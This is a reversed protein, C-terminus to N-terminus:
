VATAEIPGTRENMLGLICTRELVKRPSGQLGRFRVEGGRRKAEQLICIIAGVGSSDLYNVETMDIHICRAGSEIRGLVAAKFDPASYLDCDGRIIFADQDQPPRDRMTKEMGDRRKPEFAPETEFEGSISSMSVLWSQVYCAVEAPDLEFGSNYRSLYREIRGRFRQETQIWKQESPLLVQQQVIRNLGFHEQAYYFLDFLIQGLIARGEGIAISYRLFELREGIDLRLRFLSEVDLGKTSEIEKASM